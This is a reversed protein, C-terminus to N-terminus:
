FTGKWKTQTSLLFSGLVVHFVPIPLSATKPDNGLDNKGM